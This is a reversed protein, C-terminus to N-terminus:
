FFVGQRLRSRFRRMRSASRPYSSSAHIILTFGPMAVLDRGLEKEPFKLKLTLIPGLHVLDSLILGDPAYSNFFERQEKTLLETIELNGAVTKLVDDSDSKGKMSASAVFKGPMLEVEVKISGSRRIDKPLEEPVVPRLKIVTDATGGQIRRARAVVGAADLALDPTDFLYVQRIEAM